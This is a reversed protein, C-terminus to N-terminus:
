ESDSSGNFLVSLHRGHLREVIIQDGALSLVPGIQARAQQSGALRSWVDVDNVNPTYRGEENSAALTKIAAEDTNIGIHFFRVPSGTGNDVAADSLTVRTGVVGTVVTGSWLKPGFVQM